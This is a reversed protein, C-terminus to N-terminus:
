RGKGGLSKEVAAEIDQKDGLGTYAVKGSADLAVIYSTSPAEFARVAAGTGDWVVKFPMPHDAFHRKVSNKSQNVAVAVVVFEIRDGHKKHAAEMRPMLARCLPCWTAWFEILIPKKGVNTALDAPQGDLTEVPIPVPPVSGVAIGIEDQAGAPQSLVAVLLSTITFFGRRLRM